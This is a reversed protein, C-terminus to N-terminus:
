LKLWRKVLDFLTEDKRELDEALFQKLVNRVKIPDENELSLSFELNLAGKPNLYLKKIKPPQYIIWFNELDEWEYFKQAVMVGGEFIEMKKKERPRNWEIMLVVFFLILFILFLFNKTFASVIALSLFIFIIAAYLGATKKREEREWFEWSILEKGHLSSQRPSIQKRSRVM